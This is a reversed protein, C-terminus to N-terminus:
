IHSCAADEELCNSMTDEEDEPQEVVSINSDSMVNYLFRFQIDQEWNEGAHELILNKIDKKKVRNVKHTPFIM